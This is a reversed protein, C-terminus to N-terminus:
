SRQIIYKEIEKGAEEWSYVRKVNAQFAEPPYHENQPQTYLLVLAHPFAKAIAEANEWTDEVMVDGDVKGFLTVKDEIPKLNEDYVTCYVNKKPISFHKKTYNSIKEYCDEKSRATVLFLQVKNNKLLNQIVEKSDSIPENQTIEGTKNYKKIATNYAVDSFGFAEQLPVYTNKPYSIGTEKEFFAISGPDSNVLVGDFDFVINFGSLQQRLKRRTYQYKEKNYSIDVGLSKAKKMMKLHFATKQMKMGGFKSIIRLYAENKGTVESDLIKEFLEKLSTMNNQKMFSIVREVTNNERRINEVFEKM